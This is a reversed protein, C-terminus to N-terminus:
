RTPMDLGGLDFTAVFSKGGISFSLRAGKADVSAAELGALIWTRTEGDVPRLNYSRGDVQITPGEVAYPAGEFTEDIARITYEGVKPGRVLEFSPGSEVRIVSRNRAATGDAAPLAAECTRGGVFIRIRTEPGPARLSDRTTGWTGEPGELKALPYLVPTGGESGLILPPETLVTGSPSYLTLAGTARELVLEASLGCPVFEVLRGGHRPALAPAEVPGLTATHTKGGVVIRVTADMRPAKVAADELVWTGPEGATATLRVERTGVPDAIVVVPPEDLKSAPPLARFTLRGAVADRSVGFRVSGDAFALIRDGPAPLASKADSPREDASAVRAFAGLALLCPVVSRILRWM